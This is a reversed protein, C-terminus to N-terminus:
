ERLRMLLLVTPSPWCPVTRHATASGHIMSELCCLASSFPMRRNRTFAREQLRAAELTKHDQTVEELLDLLEFSMM